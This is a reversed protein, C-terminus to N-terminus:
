FLRAWSLFVEDGDRHRKRGVRGGVRARGLLTGQGTTGKEEKGEQRQRQRRQRRQRKRGLWTADWSGESDKDGCKHFSAECLLPRPQDGASPELRNSASVSSAVHKQLLLSGEAAACIAQLEWQQARHRDQHWRARHSNRAVRDRKRAVVWM